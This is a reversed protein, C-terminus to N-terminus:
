GMRLAELAARLPAPIPQPRRTDAAVYVHTFRAEAAAEAAGARFLGVEYQVSSTGIRSVRLGGDIADPFGLAEHFVCSTEVVLGILPGHPIDLGGEAILWGNVLTDVYEYYVVNNMHGYVDNDRWRTTLTRFRAYEARTKRPRRSQAAPKPTEAAPRPRSPAAM